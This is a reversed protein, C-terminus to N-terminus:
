RQPSPDSIEYPAPTICVILKLVTYSLQKLMGIYPQKVSFFLNCSV